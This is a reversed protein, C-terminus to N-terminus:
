SGSAPVPTVGQPVSVLARKFLYLSSSLAITQCTRLSARRRVGCVGASTGLANTDPHLLYGPFQDNEGMGALAAPVQEVEQPNSHM